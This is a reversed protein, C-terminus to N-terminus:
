PKSRQISNFLLLPAVSKLDRLPVLGFYRSDFGGPHLTLVLAMDDPISGDELATILPRKLSDARQASVPWRCQIGGAPGCLIADDLVTITDGPVGALYKMMPRLGSACPGAGLYRREKALSSFEGDPLCFTVADGRKPTEGTERYVGQALSPTINICLGSFKCTVVMLLFLAALRLLTAM